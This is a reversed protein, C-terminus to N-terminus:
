KKSKLANSALRRVASATSALKQGGVATGTSAWLRALCKIHTGTLSQVAAGVFMMAPLQIRQLHFRCVLLQM